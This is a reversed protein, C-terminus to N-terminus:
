KVLRSSKRRKAPPAGSATTGFPSPASDKRGIGALTPPDEYVPELGEELEFGDAQIDGEAIDLINDLSNGSHRRRGSVNSYQKWNTSAASTRNVPISQEGFAQASLNSTYPVMFSDSGHGALARLRLDFSDGRGVIPMGVSPPRAISTPELSGNRSLGFPSGGGTTFDTGKIISDNGTVITPSLLSGHWQTNNM